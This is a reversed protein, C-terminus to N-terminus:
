NETFKYFKKTAIKSNLKIYGISVLHNLANSFINETMHEENIYNMISPQKMQFKFTEFLNKRSLSKKTTEEFLNYLVYSPCNFLLDSNNGNVFMKPNRLKHLNNENLLKNVATMHTNMSSYYKPLFLQLDKELLSRSHNHYDSSFDNSGDLYNDQLNTENLKLTIDGISMDLDNKNNLAVLYANSTEWSFENLPWLHLPLRHTFTLDQPYAFQSFQKLLFFLTESFNNIMLYKLKVELTKKLNEFSKFEDFKECIIELFESLDKQVDDIVEDFSEDISKLMENMESFLSHLSSHSTISTFYIAMVWFDLSDIDEPNDLSRYFGDYKYHSFKLDYDSLFHDCKKNIENIMVKYELSNHLHQLIHISIMPNCSHIYELFKTLYHLQFWSLRNCIYLERCKILFNKSYFLSSIENEVLHEEHVQMTYFFRKLSWEIQLSIEEQQTDGKLYNEVVTMSLESAINKESLHNTSYNSFQENLKKEFLLYLLNIIQQIREFSYSNNTLLNKMIMLNDLSLHHHSSGEKLKNLENKKITKWFCILVSDKPTTTLFQSLKLQNITFHYLRYHEIINNFIKEGCIMSRSNSLFQNSLFIFIIKLNKLQCQKYYFSSLLETYSDFQKDFLHNKVFILVYRIEEGLIFNIKNWIIQTMLHRQLKKQSLIYEDIMITRFKKFLKSFEETFEHIFWNDYSVIDNGYDNSIFILNFQEVEKPIKKYSLKEFLEKTKKQFVEKKLSGLDFM